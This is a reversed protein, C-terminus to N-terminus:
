ASKKCNLEERILAALRQFGKDMKESDAMSFSARLYSSPKTDDTLFFRGPVLAVNKELAKEMIMSHTDDIGRVKIWLFMGAVPEDWEALGTLWKNAFGIMLDKQNKYFTQVNKIHNDFGIPGWENLLESILVQSLSSTHLTSVQMHFNVRELLPKPGTVYGVRMGASLIKSFSDLRIVRGDTDLSLFSPAAKSFQLFYYPDDEIILLDYEQAIKYIEKRRDSSISTGAPNAGNPNLYIMKPVGSNVNRADEPSWKNLVKRLSDPNIGNADGELVLYNPKYPNLIGLTGPYAPEQIIVYDGPNLMMEFIKCLGDQGGTTVLVDFQEFNPPNHYKKQFEKLSKILNPYGPTPGYQLADNMKNETIDLQMGDKLTIKADKFPFLKPNPVGSALFILSPSAKALLASFGRLPTAKRRLSVSNIFRFYNM